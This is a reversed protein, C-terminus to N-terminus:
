MPTGSAEADAALRSRDAKATRARKKAPESAGDANASSRDTLLGRLAARPHHSIPDDIFSALQKKLEDRQSALQLRGAHQQPM